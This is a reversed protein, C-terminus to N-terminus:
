IHHSSSKGFRLAQNGPRIRSPRTDIELFLIQDLGKPTTVDFADLALTQYLHNDPLLNHEERTIHPAAPDFSAGFSLQQLGKQGQIVASGPVLKPSFALRVRSAGISVDKL